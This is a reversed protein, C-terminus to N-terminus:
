SGGFLSLTGMLADGVPNFLYILLILGVLLVLLLVIMFEKTLTVGKKDMM